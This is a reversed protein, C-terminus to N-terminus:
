KKFILDDVYLLRDHIKKLEKKLNEYNKNENFESKALNEDLLDLKKINNKINELHELLKQYQQLRIFFPTPSLSSPTFSPSPPLSPTIKEEVQPKEEELGAVQKLQSPTFSPSSSPTEEKPEPPIIKEEIKTPKPFRLIDESPPIPVEIKKKKSFLGM